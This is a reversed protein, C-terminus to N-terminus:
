KSLSTPDPWKLAQSPSSCRNPWKIIQLVLDSLSHLSILGGQFRPRGCVAKCQHRKARSEQQYPRFRTVSVRTGPM